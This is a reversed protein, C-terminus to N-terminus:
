SSIDLIKGIFLLFGTSNERIVFVFPRDIRISFFHPVSPLGIEVSTVATVETGGEDVKPVLITM